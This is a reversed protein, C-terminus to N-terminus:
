ICSRRLAWNQSGDAVSDSVGGIRAMGHCALNLALSVWFASPTYRHFDFLKKEVSYILPLTRKWEIVCFGCDALSGRRDLIFPWRNLMALAVVFLLGFLVVAFLVAYLRLAHTLPVLLLAAVIGM